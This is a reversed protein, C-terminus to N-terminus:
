AAARVPAQSTASTQSPTLPRQGVFANMPEPVVHRADVPTQSAASCHVPLSGAHGGFPKSARPVSQRGAAPPQSTGSDHSPSPAVHGLSASAAEPTVHLFETPSRRCRPPRCHSSHRTDSRYSPGVPRSRGLRQRPRRHMPSRCQYWRCKGPRCSGLPLRPRGPPLPYRRRRRSTRRPQRTTDAPRREGQLSPTGPKRPTTRHRRSSSPCQLSSGLRHSSARTTGRRAWCSPSSSSRLRCRRM